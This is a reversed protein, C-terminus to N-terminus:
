AEDPPRKQPIQMTNFTKIDRPLLVDWDGQHQFFCTGEFHRLMPGSCPTVAWFLIMQDVVAASVQFIKSKDKM